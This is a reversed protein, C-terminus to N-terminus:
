ADIECIMVRHFKGEDDTEETDTEGTMEENYPIHTDGMQHIPPLQRSLCTRTIDEENEYKWTSDVELDTPHTNTHPWHRGEKEGDRREVGIGWGAESIGGTEESTREKKGSRKKEGRRNRTTPVKKGGSRREKGAQKGARALSGKRGEKM